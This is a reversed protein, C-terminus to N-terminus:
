FRNPCLRKKRNRVFNGEKGKFQEAYEILNETANPDRNLLVDEVKELLGREIEDYVSLMGANVIGMDMGAQIAHFLFISHMAERITNNGRFSFSLNSIGGSIHINPLSKKVKLFIKLIKM